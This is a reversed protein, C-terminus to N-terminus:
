YLFKLVKKRMLLFVQITGLFLNLIQLMENGGGQKYLENMGTTFLKNVATQRKTQLIEFNKAESSREM